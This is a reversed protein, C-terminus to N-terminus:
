RGSARSMGSAGGSLLRERQSNPPPSVRARGVVGDKFALLMEKCRSNAARACGAATEKPLEASNPWVDGGELRAAYRDRARCRTQFREYKRCADCWSRRGPDQKATRISGQAAPACARKIERWRDGGIV